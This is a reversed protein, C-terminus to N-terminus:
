LELRLLTDIIERKYSEALNRYDAYVSDEYEDICKATEKLGELAAKLREYETEVLPCNEHRKNFYEEKVILECDCDKCPLECLVWCEGCNQPMEKMETKVYIM